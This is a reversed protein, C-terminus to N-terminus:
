KGSGFHEARRGIATKLADLQRQAKESEKNHQEVQRRLDALTSYGAIEAGCVEADDADSTQKLCIVAIDHTEEDDPDLVVNAVSDFDMRDHLYNGCAPCKPGEFGAKVAISVVAKQRQRSELKAVNFLIECDCYGGHRDFHEFTRPINFGGMDRLVEEAMSKDKGGACKWRTEGKEDKRFDCCDPGELIGAFEDWRHHDVTLIDAM